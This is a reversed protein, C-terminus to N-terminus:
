PTRRYYDELRKQPVYGLMRRPKDLLYKGHGTHSHMHFVQCSEPVSEIEIALRCAHHLDEWSIVMPPFDQGTVPAKPAPGLGNFLFFIVQIGHTRAYTKCLEISLYKSLVNYGTSAAPPVDDVDFDFDYWGRGLQPGGIIVKRVGTEVAARMIHFAGRTSVAFDFVPHNKYAAFDIVADMGRCADLVQGYDTIDVHAVPKGDPHPKVDAQHLHYHPELGPATNAGVMGCAGLLLVHKM